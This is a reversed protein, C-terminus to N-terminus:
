NNHTPAFGLRNRELNLLRLLNPMKEDPVSHRIVGGLVRIRDERTKLRPLEITVEEEEMRKLLEKTGGFTPIPPSVHYRPYFGYGPYYITLYPGEVRGPKLSKPTHKGVVFRGDGDTLVEEADLFVDVTDAIVPVKRNWVALVAAGEIPQKTESDIVKGKYPGGAFAPYLGCAPSILLLGVAFLSATLVTSIIADRNEKKM